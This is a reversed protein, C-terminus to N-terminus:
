GGRGLGRASVRLRTAEAEPATEDARAEAETVEADLACEEAAEEWAADADAADWETMVEDRALAGAEDAALDLAVEDAAFAEADPLFDPADLWAPM